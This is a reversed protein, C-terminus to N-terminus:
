EHVSVFCAAQCAFEHVGMFKIQRNLLLPRDIASMPTEESVISNNRTKFWSQPTVVLDGGNLLVM